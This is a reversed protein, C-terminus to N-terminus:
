VAGKQAAKRRQYDFADKAQMAMTVQQITKGSALVAAENARLQASPNDDLGGRDTLDSEVGLGRNVAQPGRVRPDEGLRLLAAGYIDSPVYGAVHAQALVEAVAAVFGEKSSPM